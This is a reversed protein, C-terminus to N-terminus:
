KKKEKEAKAYGEAHLRIAIDKAIPHPEGKPFFGMLGEHIIRAMHDIGKLADREAPSSPM